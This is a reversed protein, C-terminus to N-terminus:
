NFNSDVCFLDLSRKIVFDTFSNMETNFILFSKKKNKLFEELFKGLIETSFLAANLGDGSLFSLSVAADGLLIVAKEEDYFVSARGFEIPINEVIESIYGQEIAEAEKKWGRIELLNTVQNKCAELPSQFTIVTMLSAAKIVRMFDNEQKIVNSFQLNRKSNLFDPIIIYAGKSHGILDMEISLAERISSHSGDAAILLDYPVSIEKGSSKIFVVREEKFGQFEGYIRKIGLEDCKKALRKELFKIRLLGIAEEDNLNSTLMEPIFVEWRRLLQLTYNAIAIPQSRLYDERKEVITVDFGKKAAQIASALGTPGGGIILVSCSSFVNATIFFSFALFVLKKM